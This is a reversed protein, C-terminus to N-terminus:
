NNIKDEYLNVVLDRYRWKLEEFTEKLMDFAESSTDFEDTHSTHIKGDKLNFTVQLYICGDLNVVEPVVSVVQSAPFLYYFRSMKVGEM